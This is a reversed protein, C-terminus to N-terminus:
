MKQIKFNENLRRFVRGLREIEDRFIHSNSAFCFINLFSFLLILFNFFFFFSVSLSLFLVQDIDRHANGYSVLDAM